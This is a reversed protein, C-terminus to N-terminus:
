HRKPFIRYPVENIETYSEPGGYIFDQFGDQNFDGVGWAAVIGLKGETQNLPEVDDVATDNVLYYPNTLAWSPEVGPVERQESEGLFLQAGAVQDAEVQGFGKDLRWNAVLNTSSPIVQSQSVQQIEVQSLGKNWIRIERAFGRFGRNNLHSIQFRGNLEALNGMAQSEGVLQGDIYVRNLQNNYSLALHTWVGIPIPIDSADTVTERTGDAIEIIVKSRLHVGDQSGLSHSSNYLQGLGSNIEGFALLTDIVTNEDVKFWGELTLGASFDANSIDDSFALHGHYFRLQHHQTPQGIASTIFACSLLAIIAKILFRM